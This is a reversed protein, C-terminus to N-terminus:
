GTAAAAHDYEAAIRRKALLRQWKGSTTRTLWHPRVVYVRVASVGLAVSIRQRVRAALDPHDAAETEVIVGLYDGDAGDDSDAFAVCHGHYVGPVETAIAEADDPFFNRGHVIVMEKSRGAVFLDDGLTFGLDGTRFWGNDFAARTSEPDGLYGSTVAPGRIQIEGLEGAGCLRGDEDVL